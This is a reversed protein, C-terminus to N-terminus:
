PVFIPYMSLLPLNMQNESSHGPDTAAAPVNNLINTLYTPREIQLIVVPGNSSMRPQTTHRFGM